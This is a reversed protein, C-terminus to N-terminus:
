LAKRLRDLLGKPKRQKWPKSHRAERYHRDRNRGQWGYRVEDHHRYRRGRGGSVVRDLLAELLARLVRKM